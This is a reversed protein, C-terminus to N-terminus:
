CRAKIDIKTGSTLPHGIGSYPYDLVKGKAFYLFNFEVADGAKKGPVPMLRATLPKNLRLGLAAIDLLLAQIKDVEIDGPLPVTDLGTGCVSSYQLVDYISLLGAGSRAALINDELIPMMLGNFGAKKWKGSDLAGALIAAAALSGATGIAGIGMAELAKGFSCWDEPFPALSFDFGKFVIPSQPRNIEILTGMKTAHEEFSSCLAQCGSNIDAAQEFTNLATDACEMALSFALEGSAGYAAPFFPTFPKVNALAAFRLNAFGDAELNAVQKIVAACSHIDPLSLSGQSDVLQMSVFLMNSLALIAPLISEVPCEDVRCPGLSLYEFGAEQTLSCLDKIKQFATQEDKFDLWQPFPTTALRVSQVEYGASALDKKLVDKHAHIASFVPESSTHSPDIFYTISRIRM